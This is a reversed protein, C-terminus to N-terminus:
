RFKMGPISLWLKAWSRFWCWVGLGAFGLILPASVLLSLWGGCPGLVSLVHPTLPVLGGVLFLGCFAFAVAKAADSRAARHIRRWAAQYHERTDWRTREGCAACAEQCDTTRGCSPCRTAYVFFSSPAIFATQCVPCAGGPAICAEHLITGCQTCWTGESSLIIPRQCVFCKNGAVQM